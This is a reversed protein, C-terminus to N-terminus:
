VLIKQGSRPAWEKLIGKRQRTKAVLQSFSNMSVYLGLFHELVAAFTYVGAGAFREEDFEIEVRTGRAFNIGYESVVRSFHPSSAVSLIGQVQREGSTSGAFDHLRLIEKLADTGQTVVSLYNLSLQSVLRWLLAGRPAQVSDTPKVLSVIRTIPGGGEYQFDGSEQGFPLRSPLDRNSCTLRVTVTDEGPTVPHGQLDVLTLYVDDGRDTRWASPRRSATWFAPQEDGRDAHGLSYFPHYPVPDPLNPTVGCVDDVSFIDMVQERRADPVIRYEFRKQEILIPEATQPFLNVVPTCGLRFTKQNVSAELNHRREALEFESVLFILELKDGFGAAAAQDIGSLELFSFKEPFSFYEQLLRYGLFSRGPYPLVGEDERFGVHRLSSPPLTFFKKTPASLDRVLIELCNNSLLEILTNTLSGEGHVFFRLSKTALKPFSLESFCHLELRVAGVADPVRVAPQIRDPTKWEAAHVTVPWLVTDYCARFKCRYGAVPHSYLVAGKDIKVGAAIKGQEPDLHFQVVSMSPIPRLYNPYLVNLLAQVIEPFEDDIKLHVRAALFAFAELLREVHPDECKGAELLLRGAIKPYKEGFEAGMQRLFTLEREYYFLLDERM